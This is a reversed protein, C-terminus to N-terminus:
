FSTVKYLAITAILRIKCIVIYRRKRKLKIICTSIQKRTNRLKKLVNYNIEKIFHNINIENQKNAPIIQDEILEQAHFLIIDLYTQIRV